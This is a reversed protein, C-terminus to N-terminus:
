GFTEWVKEATRTFKNICRKCTVLIKDETVNESKSGCLVSSYTETLQMKLHTKLM